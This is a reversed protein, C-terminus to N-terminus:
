SARAHRARYEALSTVGAAQAAAEIQKRERQAPTLKAVGAHAQREAVIREGVRKRKLASPPSIDLIRAMERMSPGLMPDIQYREANTAISVNIIQRAYDEIDRVLPLIAPNGIARKELGRLVRLVMACYEDDEVQRQPERVKVPDGNSKVRPPPTLWAVTAAEL